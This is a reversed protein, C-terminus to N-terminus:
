HLIQTKKEEEMRLVNQVMSLVEICVCKFIYALWQYFNLLPKMLIHITFRQVYNKKKKKHTQPEFGPGQMNYMTRELQALNM